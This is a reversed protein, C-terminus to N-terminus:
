ASVIADLYTYNALNDIVGLIQEEDTVVKVVRTLKFLVLLENRETEIASSFARFADFSTSDIFVRSNIINGTEDSADANAYIDVAPNLSFLKEVYAKFQQYAELTFGPPLITESYAELFNLTNPWPISDPANKQWKTILAIM